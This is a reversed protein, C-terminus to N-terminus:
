VKAGEERLNLRELYKEEVWLYYERTINGNKVGVKGTDRTYEVLLDIQTKTM